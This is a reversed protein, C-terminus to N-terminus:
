LASREAFPSLLEHDLPATIVNDDQIGFYLVYRFAVRGAWPLGGVRWLGVWWGAWGALLLCAARLSPSYVVEQQDGPAWTWARGLAPGPQLKSVPTAAAATASTLATALSNLIIQVNAANASPM